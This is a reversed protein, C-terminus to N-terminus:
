FLWFLWSFPNMIFYMVSWLLFKHFIKLLLGLMNEHELENTSLKRQFTQKLSFWNFSIQFNQSFFIAFFRAQVKECFTKDSVNNKDKGNFTWSKIYSKWCFLSLKLKILSIHKYVILISPCVDLFGISLCTRSILHTVGIQLQFRYYSSLIYKHATCFNCFTALDALNTTDWTEISHRNWM